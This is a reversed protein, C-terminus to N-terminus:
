YAGWTIESTQLWLGLICIESHNALQHSQNINYPVPFIVLSYKNTVLYAPQHPLSILKITFRILLQSSSAKPLDNLKGSEKDEKRYFAFLITAMFLSLKQSSGSMFLTDSLNFRCDNLGTSSMKSDNFQAFRLFSNPLVCTGMQLVCNTFLDGLETWDNGIGYGYLVYMIRYSIWPWPPVLMQKLSMTSYHLSEVAKCCFM